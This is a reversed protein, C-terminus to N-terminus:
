GYLNSRCRGDDALIMQEFRDAGWTSRWCTSCLRAHTQVLERFDGTQMSRRGIHQTMELLWLASNEVRRYYPVEVECVLSMTGCRIRPRIVIRGDSDMREECKEFTM